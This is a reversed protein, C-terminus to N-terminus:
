ECTLRRVRWRPRGHLLWGIVLWDITHEGTRIICRKTVTDTFSQRKTILKMTRNSCSKVTSSDDQCLGDNPRSCLAVQRAHSLSRQASLGSLRPSQVVAQSIFECRGHAHGPFRMCPQTRASARTKPSSTTRRFNSHAAKSNAAVTGPSITTSAHPTKTVSSGPQRMGRSLSAPSCSALSRNSFDQLVPTRIVRDCTGAAIADLADRASKHMSKVQRRAPQPDFRSGPLSSCCGRRRLWGM